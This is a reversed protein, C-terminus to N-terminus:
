AVDEGILKKKGTSKMPSHINDNDFDKIINYISRKSIKFSNDDLTELM